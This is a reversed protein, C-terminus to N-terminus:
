SAATQAPAQGNLEDLMARLRRAWSHVARRYDLNNNLSNPFDLTGFRGEQEDVLRMLSQGSSADSLDMVLTISGPELRWAGGSESMDLQLNTLAVRVRITGADARDVVTYGGAALESALIERFGPGMVEELHRVERPTVAHSGASLAGTVLNRSTLWHEDVSVALPDLAVKRREKPVVGERVFLAGSDGTRRYELGDWLGPPGPSVRGACAALAACLAIGGAVFPM